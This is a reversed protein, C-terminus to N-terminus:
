HPLCRGDRHRPRTAAPMALKGFHARTRELATLTYSRELQAHGNGNVPPLASFVMAWAEEFDDGERRRRALVALVVAFDDPPEMSTRWQAVIRRPRPLHAGTERWDRWSELHNLTVRPSHTQSQLAM